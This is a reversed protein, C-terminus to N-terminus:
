LALDREVDAEWDGDIEGDIDHVCNFRHHTMCYLASDPMPVEEVGEALNPMPGDFFIFADLDRELKTSM